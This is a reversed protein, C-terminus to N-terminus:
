FDVMDDNIYTHSYNPGIFVQGDPKPNTELCDFLFYRIDVNNTQLNINWYNFQHMTVGSILYALPESYNFVSGPQKWSLASITKFPMPYTISDNWSSQWFSFDLLLCIKYNKFYLFYNYNFRSILLYKSKKGKFFFVSSGSSFASDVSKYPINPFESQLVKPYGTIAIYRTSSSKSLSYKWILKDKTFYYHNELFFASDINNPLDPFMSSSKKPWGEYDVISWKTLGRIHWMMDGKFVFVNGWETRTMADVDPQKCFQEFFLKKSEHKQQQSYINNFFDTDNPQMLRPSISKTTTITNITIDTVAKALSIDTNSIETSNYSSISTSNFSTFDTTNLADTAMVLKAPIGLIRLLHEYEADPSSFSIKKESAISTSQQKSFFNSFKKILFIKKQFDVLYLAENM